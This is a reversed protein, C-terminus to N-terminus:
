EGSGKNRNSWISSNRRGAGKLPQKLRYSQTQTLQIKISSVKSSGVKEETSYWSSCIEARRESSHKQGGGEEKGGRMVDKNGERNTGRRM